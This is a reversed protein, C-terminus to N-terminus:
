TGLDKEVQGIKKQVKGAIKEIQGEAELDAELDLALGARRGFDLDQDGLLGLLEHALDFDHLVLTGSMAASVIRVARTGTTSRAGLKAVVTPRGPASLRM